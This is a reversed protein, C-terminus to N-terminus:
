QIVGTYTGKGYQRDVIKKIEDESAGTSAMYTIFSGAECDDVDVDVSGSYEVSSGDELVTYGLEPHNSQDYSLGESTVKEWNHAFWTLMFYYVGADMATEGVDEGVFDEGGGVIINLSRERKDGIRTLLEDMCAHAPSDYRDPCTLYRKVGNTIFSNGYSINKDVFTSFADEFIGAFERYMQVQSEDIDDPIEVVLDLKVKRM